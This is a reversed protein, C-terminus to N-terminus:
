GRRASFKGATRILGFVQEDKSYLDILDLMLKAGAPSAEATEKLRAELTIAQEAAFAASPPLALLAFLVIKKLYSM